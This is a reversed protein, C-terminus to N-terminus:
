RSPVPKSFRKHRADTKVKHAPALSQDPGHLQNALNMERIESELKQIRGDRMKQLRQVRNEFVQIAEVQNFILSEMETRDRQNSKLLDSANEVKIKRSKGTLKDFLGHLGKRYRAQREIQEANQRHEQQKALEKREARHKDVTAKRKATIENVRSTFVANQHSALKKLNESLAADMSARADDVSPLADQEKLRARVDKTKIGTWKAVAYVEGRYDVAVFGRRDGRALILGHEDLAHAFGAQTDSVAWCEKFVAKLAKPDVGRRKAQQWQAHTFNRPDGSREQQLGRPMKWGNEIYLDRAITQLKNKTFPLNVATMTDIKIRSWVCHCHRRGNKEHFVIARPQGTLGLKKEIREIANEFVNTSVNENLPPNLSLSYLFQKCRTGKSIAYAENLASMLNESAFGRVEHITVHDNEDKLLHMALNKAGARQNGVLIM